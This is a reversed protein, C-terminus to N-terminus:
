AMPSGPQGANGRPRGRIRSGHGHEGQYDVAATSTGSSPAVSSVTRRSRRPMIDTLSPQLGWPWHLHQVTSTSPCGRTAQTVGARRTLPRDIVVSSPSGASRSAAQPSANQEVPALWHPKQVGPITM